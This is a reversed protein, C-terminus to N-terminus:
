GPVVEDYGIMQYTTPDFACVYVDTFGGCNVSYAGGAGSLVQGIPQRSIKDYVVVLLGSTGTGAVSVTGSVTTGTGASRMGTLRAGNGTPPTSQMAPLSPNSKKGTEAGANVPLTRAENTSWSAQGRVYAAITWTSGDDSYEFTWANPAYTAALSASSTVVYEVIAQASTFQYSITGSSSSTLECDTALNDDFANASPFSSNINTGGATGGTCVDAGGVSTHMEIEAFSINSGNGGSFNLRWYVHASM